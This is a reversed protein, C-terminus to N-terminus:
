GVVKPLLSEEHKNIKFDLLIQEISRGLGSNDCITIPHVDKLRAKYDTLLLKTVHKIIYRLLAPDCDKASCLVILASPLSQFTFRWRGADLREISEGSTVQSVFMNLASFLGCLISPDTKM